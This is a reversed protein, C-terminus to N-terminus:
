ITKYWHLIKDFLLTALLVGVSNALVDYFDGTRYNTIGNQLAELITGYVILTIILYIKFNIKKIKKQFAFYWIISLFFYALAHLYKDGSEIKLGFNFKPIHSLSLYAIILTAIIAIFIANDELLKKIRQLM